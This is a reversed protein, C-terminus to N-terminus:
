SRSRDRMAAKVALWAAKIGEDYGFELTSGRLSKAVFLPELDYFDDTEVIEVVLADGNAQIRNKNEFYWDNTTDGYVVIAGNPLMLCEFEYDGKDNTCTVILKRVKMAEM